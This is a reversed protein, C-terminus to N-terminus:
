ILSFLIFIILYIIFSYIFEKLNFKKFSNDIIIIFLPILSYYINTLDGIKYFFSLSFGLLIIDILERLIKLKLSFIYILVLISIIYIYKTNYTFYILIILVIIRLIDNFIFVIKKIEKHEELTSKGLLFGSLSIIFSSFYLIFFNM